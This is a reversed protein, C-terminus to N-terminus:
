RPQLIFHADKPTTAGPAGCGQWVEIIVGNRDLFITKAQADDLSTALTIAYAAQRDGVSLVPEYIAYVFLSRSFLSRFITQVQERSYLNLPECRDAPFVEIPTGDPKDGCPPKGTMGGPQACPVPTMITQGALADTDRKTVVDLVRDIQVIGTRTEPPYLGAPVVVITNGEWRATVGTGLQEKASGDVNVVFTTLPGNPPQNCYCLGTTFLLRNGDASFQLIGAMQGKLVEPLFPKATGSVPDAEQWSDDANRWYLYTGNPGWLGVGYGSMDRAVLRATTEDTPAIWLQPLEAWPKIRAAVWRGDPSREGNKAFTQRVEDPLSEWPVATGIAPTNWDKLSPAPEEPGPGIPLPPAPPGSKTPHGSCGVALVLILLAALRRLM